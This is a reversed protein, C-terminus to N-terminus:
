SARKGQFYMQELLNAVESWVPVKDQALLGRHEISILAECVEEATPHSPLVIVNSYKKFFAGWPEVVIVPLGLAIAELATICFAESESLYCLVSSEALYKLYDKRSLPPLFASNVNVSKAMKVLKSKEPGNGIILLHGDPNRENLLSMAQILLCVRKYKILYGSYNVIFKEPPKWKYSFVDTSIGHPIVTPNVGLKEKLLCAEHPSISHIVDAVKVIKKLLPRYFFWAVNTHWRFGVDHFHPTLILLKWKPKFKKAVWVALPVLSHVVHVHVVDAQLKILAKVFSLTPIYYSNSPSVGTFRRVVYGNIKEVKSLSNFPPALTLIEVDHSRKAIEIAMQEVVYPVGGIYPKYSHTIYAVKM